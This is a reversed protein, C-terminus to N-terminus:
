EWLCSECQPSIGNDELVDFILQRWTDDPVWVSNMDDKAEDVPVDEYVVRYLFSFASARFNVQCHVLTKKAPGGQMLGAFMYFDSVQPADWDIPIQAFEMGLDKVHRDENELSTEHDTFALYVVREFGADAVASLQAKTPQGSSSLQPSYERYNVIEAVEAAALSGTYLMAVLPLAIMRATRTAFM